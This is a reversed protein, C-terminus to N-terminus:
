ALQWDGSFGLKSANRNSIDLAKTATGQAIARKFNPLRGMDVLRQVIQPDMGDIGIMMARKLGM